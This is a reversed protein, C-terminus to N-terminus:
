SGHAGTSPQAPCIDHHEIRSTPLSLAMPIRPLDSPSMTTPKTTTPQTTIIRNTSGRRPTEVQIASERLTATGGLSPSSGQLSSYGGLPLLPQSDSCCSDSGSNSLSRGSIEPRESM